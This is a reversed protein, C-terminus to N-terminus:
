HRTISDTRSRRISMGRVSTNSDTRSRWISRGMERGGEEPSRGRDAEREWNKGGIM